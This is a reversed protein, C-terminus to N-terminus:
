GAVCVGGTPVWVRVLWRFCLYHHVMVAPQSQTGPGVNGVQQHDVHVAREKTEGFSGYALLMRVRPSCEATPLCSLCSLRITIIARRRAARHMRYM